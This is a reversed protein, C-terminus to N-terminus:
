EAIVSLTIFLTTALVYFYNDSPKQCYVGSYIM